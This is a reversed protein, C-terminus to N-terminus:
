GVIMASGFTRRLVQHRNRFVRRMFAAVLPGLLRPEFDIRDTLACGDGDPVVTREHQWLRQSRVASRELFRRGPELEVLTVDMRDIPLLGLLLLTSRGLPRGLVFQSEDIGTVGPPATMKLYPALEANIGALSTAHAWVTAASARLPSRETHSYRV